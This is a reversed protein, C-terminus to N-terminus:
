FGELASPVLRTVLCLESWSGTVLFHLYVM